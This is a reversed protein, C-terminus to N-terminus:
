AAASVSSPVEMAVRVPVPAWGGIRVIDGTRSVLRAPVARENLWGTAHEGLMVGTTSCINADVCTAAAVSVTRWPGNAPRGTRPDILHHMVAGRGGWRRVTTSSTALAGQRLVAVEGGGRWPTRSDEAMRVRWGQAPVAGAIRIDGGIAVLVGADRPLAHIAAEAGLDVLLAKGTAGFDLEVGAPVRVTSAQSNWDIALWGAISEVKLVPASGRRAVEAFDADYGALRLLRGVTPDVLGDSLRAGRLGAELAQAFLSGVQVRGGAAANVRALESDPRFRSYSRDAAEILAELAARAPALPGDYVLLDVNTGIANWHASTITM